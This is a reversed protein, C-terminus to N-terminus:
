HENKIGAIIDALEPSVFKWGVYLPLDSEPVEIAKNFFKFDKETEPKKVWRRIGLCFGEEAALEKFEFESQLRYPLAKILSQTPIDGWTILYYKGVEFEKIM